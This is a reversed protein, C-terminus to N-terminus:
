CVHLVLVYFGNSNRTKLTELVQRLRVPSFGSVWWAVPPWYTGLTSDYEGIFRKTLLRVTLALNLRFVFM